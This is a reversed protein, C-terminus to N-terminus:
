TAIESGEKRCWYINNSEVVITFMNLSKELEWSPGNELDTYIQNSFM